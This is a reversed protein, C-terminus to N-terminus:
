KRLPVKLAKLKTAYGLPSEPQGGSVLWHPYPYPVWGYFNNNTYYDRNLQIYDTPTACADNPNEGITIFNADDVGTGTNELILMPRNPTADETSSVQGVQYRVPYAGPCGVTLKFEPKNPFDGSTNSDVVNSIIVGTGGRWWGWGNAINAASVIRTFNCNYIEVQNGGFTSSDNGSSGSGGGHVVFASDKFDCHRVVMRANDDADFSAIWHNTWVCDEFYLNAKGDTDEVGLTSGQSWYVPLDFKIQFDDGLHGSSEFLNSYLVGGNCDINAWFGSGNEFFYCDGIVFPQDTQGGDVDFHLQGGSTFRIGILKTNASAHKTLTVTGATINVPSVANKGPGILAIGDLSIGGAWSATGAPVTVTDGPSTMAIAANVDTRSASAAPFTASHLPMALAIWLSLIILLIRV